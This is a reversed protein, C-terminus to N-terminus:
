HKPTGGGSVPMAYFNMTLSVCTYYGMLVILDTIGDHGLAEVARDYPLPMLWRIEGKGPSSPSTKRPTGRSLGEIDRASATAVAEPRCSRRTVSAGAPRWSHSAPPKYRMKGRADLRVEREKGEAEADAMSLAPISAM